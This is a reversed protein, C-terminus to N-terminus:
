RDVKKGTKCVCVCVCVCVFAPLVPCRGSGGGGGAAITKLKALFQHTWIKETNDGTNTIKM